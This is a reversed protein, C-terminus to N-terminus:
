EFIIQEKKYIVDDEMYVFSVENYSDIIYSWKYSDLYYFYKKNIYLKYYSPSEELLLKDLRIEIEKKNLEMIYYNEIDKM